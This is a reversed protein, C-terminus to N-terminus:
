KANSSWSLADLRPIAVGVIPLNRRWPTVDADPNVLVFQNDLAGPLTGQLDRQISRCSKGPVFISNFLLGTAFGLGVAVEGKMNKSSWWVNAVGEDPTQIGSRAVEGGSMKGGRKGRIRISWGAAFVYKRLM